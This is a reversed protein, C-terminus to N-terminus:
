IMRVVRSQLEGILGDIGIRELVSGFESRQTILLSVGEVVLDIILLRGNRSRLRWDVQLPAGSPPDIRSRVLIDNKGVPQTATIEFRESANGLGVGAYHRLRSTFSGLLYRRFIGVFTERQRVTARRWHRGMTMRALLSLDTQSEITAMLRRDAGARGRDSSIVHLINEVLRTVMARAEYDSRTTANGVPGCALTAFLALAGQLCRRRTAREISPKM